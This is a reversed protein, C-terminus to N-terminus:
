PLPDIRARRPGHVSSAARFSSGSAPETIAGLRLYGAMRRIIAGNKQEVWAQDNNRYLRSRTLEIGEEDCFTSDADVLRDRGKRPSSRPNLHSRRAIPPSRRGGSHIGPRGATFAQTQALAKLHRTM